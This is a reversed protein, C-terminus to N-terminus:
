SFSDCYIKVAIWLSILPQFSDVHAKEEIKAESIQTGIFSRQLIRHNQFAFPM